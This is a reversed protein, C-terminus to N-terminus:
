AHAAEAEVRGSGVVRAMSVRFTSGEGPVSEVGVEAGHAEAIFKVIALGLGCGSGSRSLHNDVQYFRQFIKRQHWRAIGIGKDAVAIEVKGGAVARTTILIDRRGEPSYKWANELLNVMLTVLADADGEVILGEELRLRVAAAREGLAEVAGQVVAQLKVGEFVFAVKRREMRSFTLFNDILRSLRMNERAILGLYERRAAATAVREELLTEILVRMSTLPTKLEHSVTAILDNRLATLRFQRRLYIAIVTALLTIVGIALTGAWFYAVEQRRAAASFPDAGTLSLVLNFDPLHRGAPMTLFASALTANSPTLTISTGAPASDRLLALMEATFASEQWVALVGHNGDGLAYYPQIGGLREIRDAPLIRPSSGVSAPLSEALLLALREGAATPFDLDVHTRLREMLFLRQASTMPVSYDRLRTALSAAIGARRPDDSPLTEIALMAANPAILRGTWDVAAPDRQLPGTLLAFAAQRDGARLQARAQTFQVVAEGGPPGAQPLEDPPLTPEPYVRQGDRYVLATTAGTRLAAEFALPPPLRDAEVLANALKEWHEDLRQQGRQLEAVYVDHLRQRVALRENAAAATMFWLICLTPTAVALGFLLVGLLLRRAHPSFPSFAQM